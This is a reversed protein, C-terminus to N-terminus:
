RVRIIRKEVIYRDGLNSNYPNHIFQNNAPFSSPYSIVSNRNYFGRNLRPVVRQVFAGSSRNRGHYFNDHPVIPQYINPQYINSRYPNYSRNSRYSNFSPSSGFRISISVNAIASGTFTTLAGLAAIAAIPLKM